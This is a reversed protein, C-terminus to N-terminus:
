EPWYLVLDADEIFEGEATWNLFLFDYGLGFEDQCRFRIIITDEEECEVCWGEAGASVAYSSSDDSLSPAYVAKLTQVLQGNKYVQFEPNHVATKEGDTNQFSIHFDSHLAGDYYEPGSWGSGCHQLPLFMHFNDWACLEERAILGGGSIQANVTAEYNGELPISLVATFSGNGLNEMPQSVPGSNTDALLTVATDDYWKKLTVSIEALMARNERDIGVPELTFDTVVKEAEELELGIQNPINAIQGSVSHELNDLRYETWDRLEELQKGQIVTIVLLVICLCLTVIQLLNRKM